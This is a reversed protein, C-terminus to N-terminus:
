PQHREDHTQRQPQPAQSSTDSFKEVGSQLHRERGPRQILTNALRPRLRLLSDEFVDFDKVIPLAFM